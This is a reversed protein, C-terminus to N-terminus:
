TNLERSVTIPAGVPRLCRSANITECPLNIVPQDKGYGGVEADHDEASRYTSWGAQSSLESLSGATMVNGLLLVAARKMTIM